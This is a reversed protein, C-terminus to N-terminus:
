NYFIIFIIRKNFAINTVFSYHPSNKMIIFYVSNHMKCCFTM